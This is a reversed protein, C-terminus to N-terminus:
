ILWAILFWYLKLMPNAAYKLIPNNVEPFEIAATLYKKLQHDGVARASQLTQRKVALQKLNKVVWGYAKIKEWFWGSALAYACMGLEMVVLMPFILILTKASFNKLLFALRNKETWYYVKKNKIFSYDHYCIAKDALIIEYAFLRLRWSLDSDEHYMFFSEDFLGVRELAEARFLVAAGSAYSILNNKTQWNALPLRYNGCYGIGLYNM